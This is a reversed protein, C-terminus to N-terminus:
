NDFTRAIEAKDIVKGFCKKCFSQESAKWFAEQTVAVGQATRIQGSHNCSTTHSQISGWHLKGNSAKKVGSIDSHGQSFTFTSIALPKNM